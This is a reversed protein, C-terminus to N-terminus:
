VLLAIGVPLTDLETTKPFLTRLYFREVLFYDLLEDLAFKCCLGRLINRRVKFRARFSSNRWVKRNRVIAIAFNNQM